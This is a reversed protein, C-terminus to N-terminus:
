SIELAEPPDGMKCKGWCVRIKKFNLYLIKKANKKSVEVELLIESDSIQLQVLRGPSSNPNLSMSGEGDRSNTVNMRM